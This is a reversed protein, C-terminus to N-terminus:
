AQGIAPPDRDLPEEAAAEQESSEPDAEGDTARADESSTGGVKAERRAQRRESKEKRKRAKQQERWRKNGTTRSSRKAM